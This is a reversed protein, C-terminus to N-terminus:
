AIACPRPQQDVGVQDHAVCRFAAAAAADAQLVDVSRFDDGERQSRSLPIVYRQGVVNDGVVHGSPIAAYSAEARVGAAGLDRAFTDEFLRRMTDSRAVGIVLINSAPPGSWSPDKWENTVSFTACASLLLAVILSARYKM